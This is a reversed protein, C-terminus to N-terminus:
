EVPYMLIMAPNIVDPNRMEDDDTDKRPRSPYSLRRHPTPWLAGSKTVVYERGDVTVRNM